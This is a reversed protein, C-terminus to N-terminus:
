GSGYTPKGDEDYAGQNGPLVGNHMEGSLQLDMAESSEGSSQLLALPDSSDEPIPIRAVDNIHEQSSHLQQQQHPLQQHQQQEMPPHQLQPQHQPDAAPVAAPPGASPAPPPPPPAGKLAKKLAQAEKKREFALAKDIMDEILEATARSPRDDNDRSRPRRRPPEIKAITGCVKWLYSEMPKTQTFPYAFASSINMFRPPATGWGTRAIIMPYERGVHVRRFRISLKNAREWGPGPRIIWVIQFATAVELFLQRLSEESRLIANVANLLEAEDLVGESNIEALFRHSRTRILRNLTATFLQDAFFALTAQVRFPQHNLQDRLHPYANHGTDQDPHGTSDKLQVPHMIQTGALYLEAPDVEVQLAMASLMPGQVATSPETASSDGETAKEEDTETRGPAGQTIAGTAHKALKENVNNMMSAMDSMFHRLEAGSPPPSHSYSRRRKDNNEKNPPRSSRRQRRNDDEQRSRPADDEPRNSRPTNSASNGGPRDRRSDNSRSAVDKYSTQQDRGM